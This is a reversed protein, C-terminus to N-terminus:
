SANTSMNARGVMFFAIAFLLYIVVAVWGAPQAGPTLVTIAVLIAWLLHGVTNGLFIADRAKSAEANRAFWNVLALGFFLSFPIRATANFYDPMNVEFGYSTTTPILLGLLGILAIEISALTLLLKPKM